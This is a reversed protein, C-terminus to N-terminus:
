REPKEGEILLSRVSDRDILRAFKKYSQHDRQWRGAVVALHVRARTAVKVLDDHVSAHSWVVQSLIEKPILSERALADAAQEYVDESQIEMDDVFASNTNLLIKFQLCIHSIEHLLTFWFNDIRDYRLTLGIVPVGSSSAMAAGDLFTGPLPPMIVVCIGKNTLEDIARRPGDDRASMKAIQRLYNPNLISPDFVTSPRMAESRQLVAAQWLLLANQDTKSAARQTRTKRLLASPASQNLSSSIFLPIETRRINFGFTNLREVVPESIQDIDMNKSRNSILSEYPIGLGEHLSRIMDISLQRKGSLVESVRGRSGIFPELQRPSLGREEMRYKIAAIPDPPDIATHKEEFREILTSLVEIEDDHERGNSELLLQALQAKAARLDDATRIPKITMAPM